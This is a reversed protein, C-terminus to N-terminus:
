PSGLSGRTSSRRIQSPRSMGVSKLEQRGQRLSHRPARSAPAPWRALSAGTDTRINTSCAVGARPWSVAARPNRPLSVPAQTTGRNRHSRCPAKTAAQRRAAKLAVRIMNNGPCCVLEAAVSSFPKRSDIWHTYEVFLHSVPVDNFQRSSLNTSCERARLRRCCLEGSPAVAMLGRRSANLGDM